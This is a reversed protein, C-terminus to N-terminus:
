RATRDGDEHFFQHGHNELWYQETIEAEEREKRKEMCRQSGRVPFEEIILVTKKEEEM